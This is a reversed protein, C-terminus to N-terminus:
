AILEEAEKNDPIRSAADTSTILFDIINEADDGSVRLISADNVFFEIVTNNPYNYKTDICRSVNVYTNDKFYYKITYVGEIRKM